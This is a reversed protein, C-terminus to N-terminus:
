TVLPLMRLIFNVCPQHSVEFSAFGSKRIERRGHKTPTPRVSKQAQEYAEIFQRHKELLDQEVLQTVSALGQDLQNCWEEQGVACQM